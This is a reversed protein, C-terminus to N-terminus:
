GPSREWERAVCGRMVSVRGQAGRQERGPRAIWGHHNGRWRASALGTEDDVQGLLEVPAGTQGNGDGGLGARLGEVHGIAGRGDPRPHSQEADAIGVSWHIEMRLGPIQLSRGVEAAPLADNDGGGSAPQPDILPIVGGVHAADIKRKPRVAYKVYTGVQPTTSHRVASPRM